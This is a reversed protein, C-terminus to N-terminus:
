GSPRKKPLLTEASQDYQSNRNVFHTSPALTNFFEKRQERIGTSSSQVRNNATNQGPKSTNRLQKLSGTSGVVVKEVAHPM